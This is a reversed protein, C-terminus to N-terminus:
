TLIATNSTQSRRAQTESRLKLLDLIGSALLVIGVAVALLSAAPFFVLWPARAGNDLGDNLIGGWSAAPPLRPAGLFIRGPIGLYRMREATLPGIGDFLGVILELVVSAALVGAVLLIIRRTTLWSRGTKKQRRWRVALAIGGVIAAVIALRLFLFRGGAMMRSLVDRGLEDTGFMHLGALGLPPLLRSAFDQAQPERPTPLFTMLLLLLVTGGVVLKFLTRIDLSQDPSV